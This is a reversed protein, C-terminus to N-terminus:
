LNRLGHCLLKAELQGRRVDTHHKEAYFLRFFGPFDGFEGGKDYAIDILLQEARDKGVAIEADLSVPDGNQDARRVPIRM